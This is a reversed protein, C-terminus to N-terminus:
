GLHPGTFEDCAEKLVPDTRVPTRIITEHPLADAAHGHRVSMQECDRITEAALRLMPLARRGPPGIGLIPTDSPFSAPASGVECHRAVRDRSSAQGDTWSAWAQSWVAAEDARM